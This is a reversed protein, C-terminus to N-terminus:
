TSEYNNRVKRDWCQKCLFLMRNFDPVGGIRPVWCWVNKPTPKGCTNCNDTKDKM